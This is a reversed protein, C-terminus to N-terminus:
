MMLASRGPGGGIKKGAIPYPKLLFDYNANITSACATCFHYAESISHMFCGESKCHSALFTHGVEHCLIQFEDIDNGVTILVARQDTFALGYVDTVMHEPVFMIFLQCYFYGIIEGTNIDQIPYGKNWYWDTREMAEHLISYGSGAETVVFQNEYFHFQIDFTTLFYNQMLSISAYIQEKLNDYRCEIDYTWDVNVDCRAAHVKQVSFLPLSSLLLFSVVAVGIAKRSRKGYRTLAIVGASIWAVFLGYCAIKTSEGFPTEAFAKLDPEQIGLSSYYKITENRWLYYCYVNYVVFLVVMVTIAVTIAIIKKSV